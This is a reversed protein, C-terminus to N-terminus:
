STTVQSVEAMLNRMLENVFEVNKFIVGECAITIDTTQLKSSQM